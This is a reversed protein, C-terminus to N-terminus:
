ARGGSLSLCGIARPWCLGAVQLAGLFGLAHLESVYAFAGAGRGYNLVDRYLLPGYPNILTALGCAGCLLIADRRRGRGPDLVAAGLFALGYVLEIHLNAWLAFIGTLWAVQWPRAGRRLRALAILTVAGFLMSVMWPRPTLVLRSVALVGAGVLLPRVRSHLGCARLLWWLALAFGAAFAAQVAVVGSWGGLAHAGYMGLDFLWSYAFWPRGATTWAFPDTHPIAHHAAIWAGTRVHCFIDPDGIPVSAVSAAGLLASVLALAEIIAWRDSEAARAAGGDIEFAASPPAAAGCWPDSSRGEPM